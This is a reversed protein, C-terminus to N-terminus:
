GAIGPGTRPTGPEAPTAPQTSEARSPGNIAAEIDEAIVPTILWYDGYREREENVEWQEQYWALAEAMVDLEENCEQGVEIAAPVHHLTLGLDGKETVADKLQLLLEHTETVSKTGVAQAIGAVDDKGLRELAAFLTAQEKSTWTSVGYQTTYHQLADEPEFRAAVRGVDENFLVRYADNYKGELYYRRARAPEVSEGRRRKRPTGPTQSQLRSSARSQQPTDNDSSLEQASEDASSM